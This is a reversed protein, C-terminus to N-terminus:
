YPILKTNDLCYLPHKPSGNKNHALCFANPYRSVIEKARTRAEKFNGWAFVTTHGYTTLIIELWKDNEGIPDTHTKLISPNSSVIGFLNMMIVGGFGNNKAIKIVKTITNDPKTENATSPNVGIVVMVAKEAQWIRWLAYRYKRDPSFEAGTTM